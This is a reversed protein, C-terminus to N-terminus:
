RTLAARTFTEAPLDPNLKVDRFWYDGLVQGEAGKLTSGVQLWTEADFYTTLETVGDDEPKRYGTRHFVHCLRDGAEAIRRTGKYEVHLAGDKRAAEWAALTRQMGQKMGFTTIPYRGSQKADAGEPDREVVGVFRGALGTPKVLLQDRNEGKVYLTRQALGANERWDFLVAFPQERFTADIVETRRLKGGLREQKVFTCRYGKVDRDYRQLCANLFAVPDARALRELEAGDPIPATDAADTLLCLSLLLAHSM